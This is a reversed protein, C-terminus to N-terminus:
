TSAPHSGLPTPTTKAAGTSAAPSPHCAELKASELLTRVRDALVQVPAEVSDPDPAAAAREAVEAVFAAVVRPDFQTGAMDRLEQCAADHGVATSYARDTTMADYADCVAV